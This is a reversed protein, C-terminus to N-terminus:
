SNLTSSSSSSKGGGKSDRMRTSIRNSKGKSSNRRGSSSSSSINSNKNNSSHSHSHRHNLGTPSSSSVRTLDTGGMSVSELASPSSSSGSKSALILGTHFRAVENSPIHLVSKDNEALAPVLERIPHLSYQQIRAANLEDFFDGGKIYLLGGTIVNQDEHTTRATNSHVEVHKLDNNRGLLHSSFSLFNPVASVSRGIIYNFKTNKYREARKTVIKVNKLGLSRSIDRVVSMKKTNSDLLTFEADPCAIAIPLGPFGGGTGVDIVHDGAEFRKVLAISLAPVLHNAVMHDIDKRSILNIKQNWETVERYLIYLQEYQEPSLFPFSRGYQSFDKEFSFQTGHSRIIHSSCLRSLYRAPRCTLGLAGVEASSRLLIIMLLWKFSLM